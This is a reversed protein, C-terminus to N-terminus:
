LGDNSVGWFDALFPTTLVEALVAKEEDPLWPLWLVLDWEAESLDLLLRDNM